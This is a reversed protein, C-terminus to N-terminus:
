ALPSFRNSNAALTSGRSILTELIAGKGRGVHDDHSAGWVVVFRAWWGSRPSPVVSVQIVEETGRGTRVGDRRCTVEVAQDGWKLRRHVNKCCTAEKVSCTVWSGGRVRGRWHPLAISELARRSQSSPCQQSAVKPSNTHALVGFSRAVPWVVPEFASAEAVTRVTSTAWSGGRVLRFPNPSWGKHCQVVDSKPVFFSVLFGEVTRWLLVGNSCFLARGLVGVQACAAPPPWSTLHFAVGATQLFPTFSDSVVSGFGSVVFVRGEGRRSSSGFPDFPHAGQLTSPHPPRCRSESVGGFNLSLAGLLSFIISVTSPFFLAFNQVGRRPGM